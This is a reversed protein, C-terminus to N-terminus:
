SPWTGLEKALSVYDISSTRSDGAASHKEILEHLVFPTLEGREIIEPITGLTVATIRVGNGNDRTGHLSREIQADMKSRPGVYQIIRIVRVIDEM